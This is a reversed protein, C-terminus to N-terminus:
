HLSVLIPGYRDQQGSRECSDNDISHVGDGVVDVEVRQGPEWSRRYGARCDVPLGIDLANRISGETMEKNLQMRLVTLHGPIRYVLTRQCINHPLPSTTRTPGLSTHCIRCIRCDQGVATTDHRCDDHLEVEGVRFGVM